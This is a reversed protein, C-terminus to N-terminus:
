RGNSEGHSVPLSSLLNHKQVIDDNWLMLIRGRTGNAVRQTFSKLRNGGLFAGTFVYINELKSEQLCVMDCSTTAIGASATM